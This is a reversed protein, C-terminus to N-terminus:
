AERLFVFSGGAATQRGILMEDDLFTLLYDSGFNRELSAGVGQLAAPMEPRLPVALRFQRWAACVSQHRVRPPRTLVADCEQQKGRMQARCM